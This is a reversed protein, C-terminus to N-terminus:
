FQILFRTFHRRLVVPTSTSVWFIIHVITVNKFESFLYKFAFLTCSVKTYNIQKTLMRTCTALMNPKKKNFCM